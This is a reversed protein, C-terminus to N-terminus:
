STIFRWICSGCHDSRWPTMATPNVASIDGYTLLTLLKLREVTEVM